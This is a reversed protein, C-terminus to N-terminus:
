IYIKALISIRKLPQQTFHIQGNLFSVDMEYSVQPYEAM